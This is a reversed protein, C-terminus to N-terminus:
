FFRWTVRAVVARATEMPIVQLGDLFEIHRPTLLNQGTLSIETKDNVRWGFRTDVRTWAPVVGSATSGGALTGVYFVSTDWEVGRPLKINSRVQAQHKPSDGPTAPFGTDRSSSTESVNMELFSYGPSIRWWRTVDWHASFEVGYNLAMGLNEYVSPIVLHPPVPATTFYPAEPESTQLHDYDGIFVTADVTVRKSIESRYGVEYDYLTPASFTPNGGLHVLGFPLGPVPVAAIDLQSEATLWSPQQIARSASVWMTQRSGPSWVVQTGPEYEYGSYANHELKVGVTLAVNESLKIQDQVFGTFLNDRRQGNAFTIEYGDTDVQDSIRYGLGAVIDNRAGAHFHYQFDVDGTNVVNLAQDFRRYRDYYMQVTAESGNAFVHSWRGLLNGSGVRVADNLTYLTPLRNLFLTSITQQESAGLIDGQVTLKDGPSLNWDSRFGGQSDHAEDSAPNGPMSPSDGNMSYRGYVRYYGKAGATGGYQALGSGVGQSAGEMSIMSGRTEAASKTLINIVGNMANAGWVTGGPGRIVEIRDINELPMSQQDWYVGSFGPTYVTRGDVMVLVKSSYRYNFGRISIAWTNANIRAVDVGPVMRLLDPVNTAGSHRIDEQTIVYISSGAKSLSQEKKSVSTVQLNMLDELSVEALNSTQPAPDALAVSQTLLASAGAVALCAAAIRLGANNLAPSLMQFGSVAPSQPRLPPQKERTRKM